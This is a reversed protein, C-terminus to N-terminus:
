HKRWLYKNRLYDAQEHSILHEVECVNISSNVEDLYCDLFGDNKIKCKRLKLISEKLFSPINEEFFPNYKEFDLSLLEEISISLSKAIKMLVRGSCDYINSKGSAIDFLTTKAVGSEKSLRYISYHNKNLLDNFFM